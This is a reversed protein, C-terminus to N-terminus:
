GGLGEVYARFARGVPTLLGSDLDALNGTPYASDALSFWAWRQVLRGDDPPYGTSPDRMSALLSFSRALYDATFEPSYGYESPMLIGFETVALPVDRYGRRQMWARFARLQAEFLDLRGHDVVEYLQGQDADLGPPIDVGWSGRQERLVFGHVTWLDVPMRSGYLAEYASLVRDLYELRLPTAQSVGGVAVRAGPDMAKLAHYFDHYVRAYREPTVNDQWIVDPENGIIWVREPYRLAIRAADEPTLSTCDAAVRVMQWHDPQLYRPRRAITWDVYWGAGLQPGWYSADAALALGFGVRWSESRWLPDLVGQPRDVAAEGGPAESSESPSAPAEPVLDGAFRCGGGIPAEPRSLGLHISGLLCVLVLGSLLVGKRV